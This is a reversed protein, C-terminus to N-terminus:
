PKGSKHQEAIHALVRKHLLTTLKAPMTNSKLEYVCQEAPYPIVGSDDAPFKFTMACTKIKTFRLEIKVTKDEYSQM